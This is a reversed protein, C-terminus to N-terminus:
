LRRYPVSVDSLLGRKTKRNNLCISKQIKLEKEGRMTAWEGPVLLDGTVSFAWYHATFLNKWTNLASKEEGLYVANFLEVWPTICAAIKTCALFSMPRQFHWPVETMGFWSVLDFASMEPLRVRSTLKLSFQRECGLVRPARLRLDDHKWTWVKFQLM